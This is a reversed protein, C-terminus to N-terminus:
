TLGDILQGFRAKADDATLYGLNYGDVIWSIQKTSLGGQKTRLAEGLKALATNNDPMLANM